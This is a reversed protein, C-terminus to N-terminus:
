EYRSKLKSRYDEVRSWNPIWTWLKIDNGTNPNLVAPTSLVRGLKLRRIKRAFKEGLNFGGIRDHFIIMARKDSNDNIFAIMANIDESLNHFEEIGCCETSEIQCCSYEHEDYEIQKM